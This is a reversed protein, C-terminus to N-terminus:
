RFHCNMLQKHTIYQLPLFSPSSDFLPYFQIKNTNAPLLSITKVNKFNRPSYWVHSREPNIFHDSLHTYPNNHQIFWFHDQIYTRVLKSIQKNITSYEKLSSLPLRFADQVLVTSFWSNLCKESDFEM